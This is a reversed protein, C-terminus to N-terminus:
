SHFSALLLSEALLLEVPRWGERLNLSHSSEWPRLNHCNGVQSLEVQPSEGPRLEM